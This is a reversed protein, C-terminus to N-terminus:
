GCKEYKLIFKHWCRCFLITQSRSLGKKNLIYKSVLSSVFTGVEYVFVCFYGRIELACTLLSRSSLGQEAVPWPDGCASRSRRAILRFEVSSRSKRNQRLGETKFVTSLPQIHAFCV